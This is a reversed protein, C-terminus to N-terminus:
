ELDLTYSALKDLRVQGSLNSVTYLDTAEDLTVIVESGEVVADDGITEKLASAYSTSNCTFVLRNFNSSSSIEINSNKYFRAPASYLTAATTNNTVTLEGNTFTLVGSDLKGNAETFELESALTYTAVPTGEEQVEVEIEADGAVVFSYVGEDAVLTNGYVKVSAVEYGEEVAVTFTATEDNTYTEELGNVTAYEDADVNVASTGAVRDYFTPYGHITESGVKVNTFELVGGYNKIAGNILVTDNQALTACSDSKNVSYALITDEGDADGLYINKWGYTGNVTPVNTVVASVWLMEETYDDPEACYEEAIELADAISIPNEKTGYNVGEGPNGGDPNVELVVGVAEITTGYDARILQM